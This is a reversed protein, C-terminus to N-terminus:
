RHLAELPQLNAASRAGLAAALAAVALGSALVVVVDGLELKFPVHDLFYISAPLRLLHYRGLLWALTAGVSGGVAVGALGLAGGLLVFARTITRRTAGMARMIGIESRKSAVILHIDSVLALAAVLVILLVSLFMLTKELGLAFFLVRNLDQWSSVRATGGIEAKLSDAVALASDLDGTEVLVRYESRGFLGEAAALPLAIRDRQETVGSSFSDTVALRVVRPQPGLPTLTPRSSAVEVIAGPELMWTEALSAAVYLGNPRGAAGPFIVPVPGEYGLISVPRISGLHAIWGAGQTTIKASRVGSMALLRDQVRVAAARDSVEVEVEPTRALIESRLAAQFGTLASLALILAVVGVAIGGAAVASLFTVFSDKRGSKLYRAALVV